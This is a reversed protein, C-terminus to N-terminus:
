ITYILQKPDRTQGDRRHPTASGSGSGSGLGTRRAGCFTLFHGSMRFRVRVRHTPSVVPRNQFVHLEFYIRYQRLTRMHWTADNGM